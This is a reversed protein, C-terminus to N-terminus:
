LEVGVLFINGSEKDEFAGVSVGSKETSIWTDYNTAPRPLFWSPQVDKKKLLEVVHAEGEGPRRLKLNEFMLKRREGPVKVEFSWDQERPVFSTRRYFSHVITVDEPPPSGDFARKWNGPDDTWQGTCGCLVLLTLLIARSFKM